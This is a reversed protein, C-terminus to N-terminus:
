SWRDNFFRTLSLDLSAQHNIVETGLKLRDKNEETGSFHRFSKFYRASSNFQWSGKSSEEPHSLMFSAGTSKIAVCGQANTQQLFITASLILIFITRM